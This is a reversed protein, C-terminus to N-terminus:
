VKRDTGEEPSYGNFYEERYSNEGRSIDVRNMVAGVIPARVMRLRKVSERIADKRLQNASVILLVGDAKTGLIVSDAIGLVPPADLVIHDYRNRVSVLFGDMKASGLLEAPKSSRMGATMIHLTSLETRRIVNTPKDDTLYESLGPSAPIHFVRHARPRRLDADVLLVKAGSQALTLAINVASVSKGESSMSSTMLLVQPVGSPTSSLLSNRISRYAESIRSESAQHSILEISYGSPLSEIDVNPVHGISVLQAVRELEESSSITDDLFAFLLALGVGLALGFIVAFLMNVSMALKHSNKFVQATKFVELSDFEMGVSVGMSDSHRLLLGLLEKETEWERKLINYQVFRDNRDLLANKKTEFQKSLLREQALLKKHSSKTNAVIEDFEHEIDVELTAIKRSVERLAPYDQRYISSLRIYETTRSALENKLAEISPHPLVAPVINTADFKTQIYAVESEIRSLKLAELAAALEEFEATSVTAQKDPNQLEKEGDFGSLTQEVRELRMLSAATEERLFENASFGADLKLKEHLQIYADAIANTIDISNKPDFSDFSIEILRSETNQRVDIRDIFRRVRAQAVSVAGDQLDSSGATDSNRLRDQVAGWLERFGTVLGRQRLIGNLEPDDSLELSEFVTRSVGNSKVIQEHSLSFLSDQSQVVEDSQSAVATEEGSQKAAVLVTSRYIPRMLLTTILTILLVAACVGVITSRYKKLAFGLNRLYLGRLSRKSIAYPSYAIATDSRGLRGEGFLKQNGSSDPYDTNEFHM